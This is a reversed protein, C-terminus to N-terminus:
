KLEFSANISSAIKVQGLAVTENNASSDASKAMAMVMMPRPWSEPQVNENIQYPRLIEAGLEKAIAAAKDKAARVALLRAEDRFKKAQSSRFEVGTINNVGAELAESYIAEFKTVDRLLITVNKTVFFGKKSRQQGTQNDMFYREENRVTFYDTKFDKPDVKYKKVIDLTGKVADDNAKKAKSLVPDFTEVQLNLQVEDPVAMVEGEGTVTILRPQPTEAHAASTILIAIFFYSSLKFM